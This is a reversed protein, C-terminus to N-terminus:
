SAHDLRGPEYRFSKYRTGRWELTDRFLVKKLIVIHVWVLFLNGLAFLPAYRSPQGMEKLFLIPTVIMLLLTLIPLVPWTYPLITVAGIMYWYMALCYVPVSMVVHIALNKLIAPIRYDMCASLIRTWGSLTAAFGDYMKTHMLNRGNALLLGLGASKVKKGIGVDEVALDRVEAHGGTEEYADRRIMYFMGNAMAISSQPDNVKGPPFLICCTAAFIPQLAKEWFTELVFKPTLTILSVRHDQALLLCSRLAFKQLRTDADLFALWQGSAQAVGKYLAHCKGTWGQPLDNVTIVKCNGSNKCLDHAIQGTADTSRDDVVILEFCPYDQELVSKICQTIAAEENHAPIILSILPPDDPLGANGSPDVVPLRRWSLVLDRMRTAWFWVVLLLTLVGIVFLM